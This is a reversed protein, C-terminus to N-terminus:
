SININNNDEDDKKGYQLDNDSIDKKKKQIMNKKEIMNKM